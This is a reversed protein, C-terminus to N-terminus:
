AAKGMMSLATKIFKQEADPDVRKAIFLLAENYVLVRTIDPVGDLRKDLVEKIDDIVSQGFAFTAKFEEVAQEDQLIRGMKKWAKGIRM